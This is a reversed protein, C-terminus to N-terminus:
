RQGKCRVIRHTYRNNSTRHVHIHIYMHIDVNYMYTFHAREGRDKMKRMMKERERM